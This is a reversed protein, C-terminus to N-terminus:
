AAEKTEIAAGRRARRLFRDFCEKPILIKKPGLDLFGIEDLHNRIHSASVGAVEAAEAVTMYKKSATANFM